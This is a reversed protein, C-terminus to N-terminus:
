EVLEGLLDNLAVVRRQGGVKGRSDGVDDGHHELPVRSLTGRDVLQQFDWHDLASDLTEQGLVREHVFERVREKVVLVDEVFELLNLLGLFSILLLLSGLLLSALGHGVHIDVLRRLLVHLM